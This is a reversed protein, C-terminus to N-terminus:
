VIQELEKHNPICSNSLRTEQMLEDLLFTLTREGVGIVAWKCRYTIIHTESATAHTLHLLSHVHLMSNYESNEPSIDIFNATMECRALTMISPGGTSRSHMYVHSELHARIM